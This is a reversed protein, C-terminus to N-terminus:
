YTKVVINNVKNKFKSMDSKGDIVFDFTLIAVVVHEADAPIGDVTAIPEWKSKRIIREVEATLREDPSLHIKRVEASGDDLNVSFEVVVQGDAGDAKAEAPYRINAKCFNSFRQLLDTVKVGENSPKNQPMWEKPVETPTWEKPMESPMWEKPLKNLKGEARVAGFALIMGAIMPIAACLRLPSYRGKKFNTMMLFRKKSTQSKLGCTVEPYYGYLQQFVLLRYKVVDYGKDIVDRDAEWEQVEVLSSGALWVFPNIWFLCRIVEVAMREATHRHRIHSYEHAIIVEREDASFKDNMYITRWFSFPEKTKSSEALTYAEYFTLQSARRIAYVERLRMALRIFNLAVVAAYIAAVAYKVVLLWDVREAENAPQLTSIDINSTGTTLQLQLSEAPYIPLELLPIVAAMLTTAIIYVRASRHAVRGEIVLRYLAYFLGSCCVFEAMYAVM